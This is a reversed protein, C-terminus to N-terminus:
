SNTKRRLHQLCIVKGGRMQGSGVRSVRSGNAKEKCDEEWISGLPRTSGVRGVEEVGGRAFAGMEEKVRGGIEGGNGWFGAGKVQGGDAEEISIVHVVVYTPGGGM